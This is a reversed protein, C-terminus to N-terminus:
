EREKDALKSLQSESLAESYIALEDLEGNLFNGMEGSRDVAGVTFDGNGDFIGNKLPYPNYGEETVLKGNVFVRSAKGDYTMAVHTWQDVPIKTGSSSYTICYKKGATPGGVDSVHGHAEDRTPQREMTRSDSRTSANLFLCYQRQKETENWIGAVAQWHSGAKRRVWAVVSFRADPGHFDIAEFEGDPITFYQGAQIRVAREGESRGEVVAIPGNVESLRYAHAGESVRDRGANEDFDWQCVPVPEREAEEANAAPVVLALLAPFFIEFRTKMRFCHSPWSM